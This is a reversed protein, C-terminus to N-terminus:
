PLGSTETIVPLAEIQNVICCGWFLHYGPSHIPPAPVQSDQFGMGDVGQCDPALNDALVCEGCMGFPRPEM